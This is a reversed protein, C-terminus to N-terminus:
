EKQLFINIDEEIFSEYDLCSVNVQFIVPGM